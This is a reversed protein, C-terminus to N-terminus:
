RRKLKVIIYDELEYKYKAVVILKGTSIPKRIDKTQLECTTREAKGEFFELFKNTALTCINNECSFKEGCNVNELTDPFRIAISTGSGGIKEIIGSGLNAYDIYMYLEEKEKFPEPESFTVKLNLVSPLKVEEGRLQSLEGRKARQTYERESLVVIDKVLTANAKYSIKFRIWCDMEMDVSKPAQLSFSFVRQAGAGLKEAHKAINKSSFLCTDTINVWLNEIDKNAAIKVRIRLKKSPSIETPYAQITYSIDESSAEQLTVFQEKLIPIQLNEICGSLVLVSVLALFSFAKKIM